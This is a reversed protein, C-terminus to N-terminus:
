DKSEEKLGMFDRWRRQHKDEPSQDSNHIQTSARQLESLQVELEARERGLKAREMSLDIEAQRLKAEWQQQIEQLKRREENILDNNDLLQAVGAAGIAMGQRAESQSQIIDRLEQIERDRREIELQTSTIIEQLDIRQQRSIPQDQEDQLDCENELQQLMLKKREEWSLREPSATGRGKPSSLSDTTLHAIRSALDSNQRRLDALESRAADLEAKLNRDAEFNHEDDDPCADLATQLMRIRSEADELRQDKQALHQDKQALQQKVQRLQHDHESLLSDREAIQNATLLLQNQTDTLEQTIKAIQDKLQQGNADSHASSDQPHALQQRLSDAEATSKTLEKRLQTIESEMKAWEADYATALREDLDARAKAAELRLEARQARITQALSKRQRALRWDRSQTKELQDALQKRVAELRATREEYEEEMRTLAALSEQLQPFYGALQTSLSDLQDCRSHLVSEISTQVCRAIHRSLSPDLSLSSDSGALGGESDEPLTCANPFDLSALQGVGSELQEVADLLEGPLEFPIGARRFRIRNEQLKKKLSTALEALERPTPMPKISIRDISGAPM